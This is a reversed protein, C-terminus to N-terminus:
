FFFGKDKLVLINTLIILYRVDKKAKIFRNNPTTTDPIPIYRM